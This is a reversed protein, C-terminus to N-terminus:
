GNNKEELETKRQQFSDRFESMMTEDKTYDEGNQKHLRVLQGIFNLVQHNKATKISHLIVSWRPADAVEEIEQDM